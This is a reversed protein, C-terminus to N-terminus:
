AMPRYDTSVIELKSYPHESIFLEEKNVSEVLFRKVYYKDKEPDFYIASIPKSPIWKELVIIDDEFHTSLEHIITKLKGSQNIILLRDEPKFEGLLEGRGDINLRNVTDDFWKKRPRLNSIGREILEIKKIPYKTVLNVKSSRGKILLDALDLDFKLKKDNSLQRLLITVVEAEGNPNN